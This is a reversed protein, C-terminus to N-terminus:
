QQWVCRRSFEEGNRPSTDPFSITSNIARSDLTEPFSFRSRFITLKINVSNWVAGALGGFMGMTVFIPLEFYEYPLPEFQGLNFLGPYSFTKLDKYWSLIVNLTFSSIISAILAKWILAQNWYSAAEELAFM